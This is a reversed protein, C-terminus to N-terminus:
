PLLQAMVTRDFNEAMIEIGDGNPHCQDVTYRSILDLDFVDLGNVYHIHQDGNEKLATYVDRITDRMASITYGVANPKTENPPFGIPSILCLPTEPQKERIIAVLGMVAGPFTRANLSGGICNIGLKLTILDAGLDRIAMGVVPELHCQGGFGLSILNLRRKRAIIAPWTRASGHARVCHTLSSGYTVWKPRTDPVPRCEAGDDVLLARVTIPIEPPLWVEVIKEGAPLGQITIEESGPAATGSAAIEGNVTADIVFSDRLCVQPIVPLPAVRLCIATTETEFRLRCGSGYQAYTLLGNGPSPFLYRREHPLRWPRFGEDIREVSVVGAFFSANLEVQQM